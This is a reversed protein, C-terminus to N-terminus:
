EGGGDPEPEDPDPLIEDIPPESDEADEQSVADLDLGEILEDDEGLEDVVASSNVAEVLKSRVQEYIEPNAILYSRLRDKGQFREGSFTYFKGDRKILRQVVGTEIVSLYDDIGTGFRIFIQTSHGQKADIKSKVVKVDTVNGYPFRRVKGSMKDKREVFESKIRALRLREYAYFKLAKGGSTNESDGAGGYPNSTNILARTQNILVLATGPHGPKDAPHKHLWSVFKPLETSFKAALAGIKASQDFNKDFEAKPVMAAVSDVVIIDVGGVIGIYLMKLGDEMTDPQYVQLKDDDLSVGLKQAYVLDISHEFDILLAMGGAKQAQAIASLALTTKGSSEAGYVETIRRRPFGPCILVKGNDKLPTGGILMDVNFSGTPVYAYATAGPQLPKSQTTKQIAGRIKAMLVANASQQASAAKKSKKKEDDTM